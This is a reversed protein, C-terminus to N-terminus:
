DSQVFKTTQLNSTEVFNDVLSMLGADIEPKNWASTACYFENLAPYFKPDDQKIMFTYVLNVAQIVIEKMEDDSIRSAANWPTEQGYGDVIKVDSYDGSKTQPSIGAHLDELPNRFCLLSLLKAIYAASKEKAKTSM